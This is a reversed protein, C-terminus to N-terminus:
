SAPICKSYRDSMSVNNNNNKPTPRNPATDVIPKSASRIPGSPTTEKTTEISTQHRTDEFKTFTALKAIVQNKEVALKEPSLSRYGTLYNVARKRLTDQGSGYLHPKNSADLFRAVTSGIQQPGGNEFIDTILQLQLELRQQEDMRQYHPRYSYRRGGADSRPPSLSM